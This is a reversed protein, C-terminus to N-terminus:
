IKSVKVARIYDTYIKNAGDQYGDHFSKFWAITSSYESSSWYYDTNFQKRLEPNKYCENLIDNNPLKYDSGLSQCWNIAEQWSLKKDAQPGLFYAYGDKTCIYTGDLAGMVIAHKNM